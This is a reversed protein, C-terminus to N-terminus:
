LEIDLELPQSMAVAQRMQRVAENYAIRGPSAVKGEIPRILRMLYAPHPICVVPVHFGLKPHRYSWNRSKLVQMTLDPTQDTIINGAVRGLTVITAPRVIGIQTHLFPLCKAVEEPEPDRNNPPRCKVVNAVYVDDRGSGAHMLMKNLLKGSDGVFPEGLLDEFRGPGEGIVMLNAEPNGGGFVVRTRGADALSCRQCMGLKGCRLYELKAEKTSM